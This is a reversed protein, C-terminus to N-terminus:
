VFATNKQAKKPKTQAKSFFHLSTLFPRTNNDSASISPDVSVHGLPRLREGALLARREFYDQKKLM